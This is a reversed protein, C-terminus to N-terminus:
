YYYLQTVMHATLTCLRMLGCVRLLMSALQVPKQSSNLVKPNELTDEPMARRLYNPHVGQSVLIDLVAQLM